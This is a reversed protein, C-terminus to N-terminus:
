ALSIYLKLDPYLLVVNDEPFMGDVLSEIQSLDVKM